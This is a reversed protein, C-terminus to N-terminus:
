KNFYVPRLNEPPPVVNELSIEWFSKSDYREFKKYVMIKIIVNKAYLNKTCIEMSLFPYFMKISSDLSHLSFMVRTITEKLFYNFVM